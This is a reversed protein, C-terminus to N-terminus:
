KRKKFVQIHNQLIYFIKNFNTTWDNNQRKQIMGNNKKLFLM